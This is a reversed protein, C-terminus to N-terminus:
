LRGLTENAPQSDRQRQSSWSIIVFRADLRPHHTPTLLPYLITTLNGISLSIKIPFYNFEIDPQLAVQDETTPIDVFWIRDCYTTLNSTERFLCDFFPCNWLLVRCKLLVLKQYMSREREREWHVKAVKNLHWCYCSRLPQRLLGANLASHSVPHSNEGVNRRRKKNLLFRERAAMQRPSPQSWRTM